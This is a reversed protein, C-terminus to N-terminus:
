ANFTVRGKEEMEAFRERSVVRVPFSFRWADRIAIAEPDGTVCGNMMSEGPKLSRATKLRDVVVRPVREIPLEGDVTKKSM